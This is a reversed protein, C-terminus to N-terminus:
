DRGETFPMVQRPSTTIMPINATFKDVTARKTSAAVTDAKQMQQPQKQFEKQRKEDDRKEKEREQKEVRTEEKQKSEVESAAATGPPTQEQVVQPASEGIAAAGTTAQEAMEQTSDAAADMNKYLRWGTDLLKEMSHLHVRQNKARDEDFELIKNGQKIQERYMGDARQVIRYKEKEQKYEEGLLKLFEEYATIDKNTLVGMEQRVKFNEVIQTQTELAKDEQKHLKARLDEIEKTLNVAEQDKWGVGKHREKTLAMERKLLEKQLSDQTRQMKKLSEVQTHTEFKGEKARM